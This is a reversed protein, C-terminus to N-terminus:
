AARLQEVPWCPQGGSLAPALAQLAARLAPDAVAVTDECNLAHGAPLPAPIIDCQLLMGSAIREDSGPRM